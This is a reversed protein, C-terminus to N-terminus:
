KGGKTQDDIWSQLDDVPYRVCRGLRVHPIEGSAIMSWLKRASIGLAIRTEEPTFLLRQVAERTNIVGKASENPERVFSLKVRFLQELQRRMERELELNGARRAAVIIAVLTAPSDTEKTL